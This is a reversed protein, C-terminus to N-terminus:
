HLSIHTRNSPVSIERRRLCIHAKDYVWIHGEGGKKDPLCSAIFIVIDNGDEILTNAGHRGFASVDVSNRSGDVLEFNKMAVGDASTKTECSAVVGRINTVFPTSATLDEFRTLFSAESLRSTDRMFDPATNTLCSRVTTSLKKYPRVSKRENSVNLETLCVCVSENGMEPQLQAHFTTALGDWADVRAAATSDVITFGFVKKTVYEKLSKDWTEVSRVNDEIDVVIAEITVHSNGDFDDKYIDGIRAVRCEKQVIAPAKKRPSVFMDVGSSSQSHREDKRKRSSESTMSPGSAIQTSSCSLLNTRM